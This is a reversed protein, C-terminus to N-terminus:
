PTKVASYEGFPTIIEFVIRFNVTKVSDPFEKKFERKLPTSNEFSPRKRYTVCVVFVNSGSANSYKSKRFGVLSKTGILKGL